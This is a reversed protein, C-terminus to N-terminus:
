CRVDPAVWRAFQPSAPTPRCGGSEADTPPAFPLSVKRPSTSVPTSSERDPSAPAAARGGLLQRADDDPECSFVARPGESSYDLELRARGLAGAGILGDLEPGEPRVSARLAQM